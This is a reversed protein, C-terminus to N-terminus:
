DDTTNVQKYKRVNNLRKLSEETDIVEMCQINIEEDEDIGHLRCMELRNMVADMSDYVSVMESDAYPYRITVVYVNM